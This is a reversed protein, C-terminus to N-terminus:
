SPYSWQMTLFLKLPIPIQNMLSSHIYSAHTIQLLSTWFHKWKPRTPTNPILATLHLENLLHYLNKGNKKTETDGFIEHRANFDGALIIDHGEELWKELIPKLKQLSLKYPKTKRPPLYVTALIIDKQGKRLVKIAVIELETNLTLFPEM